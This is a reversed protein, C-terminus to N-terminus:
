TRPMDQESDLSLAGHEPKTKQFDLSGKEPEPSHAHADKM